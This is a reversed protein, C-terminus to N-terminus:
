VYGLANHYYICSNYNLASCLKKTGKFEVYKPPPNAWSVLFLQTVVLAYFVFFLSQEGDYYLNPFRIYSTFTFTSAVAAFFWFMFQVGSSSIGKKRDKLDYFLVQSITILYVLPAIIYAEPRNADLYVMEMIWQIGCVLILIGSLVLRGLMTPTWPVDRSKSNKWEFMKIVLCLDVLLCPTYVLVTSHFCRTFDPNDTYWTLNLDWLPDQCFERM